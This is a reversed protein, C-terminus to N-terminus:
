LDAVKPIVEKGVLEIAQMHDAHTMGDIRLIFEDYGYSAIKRCREVFFEPTGISIYPSREILTSLDSRGDVVERLAGMAAYDTSAASLADYWKVVEDIFRGAVEAGQALAEEETPACHAVAALVGRSETLVGPGVDVKELGDAYAAMAKELYEWGGPLSNGTMVGIGYVGANHHTEISTASVHFPPHPQQIPKPMVRTPPIDWIEGHFEVFEESLAKRIIQISEEWMPRTLKPDVGFSALTGPNNSRATGMEFRGDSLIDITATREAVRLPHNFPLLVFSGVRLRITSTKAALYALFSEPASITAVTDNFHQESALYTSFGMEEALIAEETMEQYRSAAPLAANPADAEQIIAIKM